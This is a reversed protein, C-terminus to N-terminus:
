YVRRKSTRRGRKNKIYRGPHDVELISPYKKGCVALLTRFMTRIDRWFSFKLISQLNIYMKEPLVVDIYTREIDYADSLVENEGRYLISCESTVGAPLLLTALMEYTYFRVYKPVEPRTGVFSMQGLAVNILQPIEDLRYRRIFRGVKTIRSDNGSTILHGMKDANTVMTRFKVIYFKRGYQTIRVQKYFVSGESDLKILLSLVLILPSLLILLIISAFIDFLRKLLRTIKKKKILEYYKEISENQLFDPLLEWDVLFM